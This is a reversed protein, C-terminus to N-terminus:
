NLSKAKPKAIPKPAPADASQMRAALAAPAPHKADVIHAGGEEQKAVFSMLLQMAYPDKPDLKVATRMDALAEPRKGKQLFAPATAISIATARGLKIAQSCDALARDTLKKGAYGLCRNNFATANAPM